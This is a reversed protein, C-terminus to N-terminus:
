DDDWDEPLEIEVIDLDFDEFGNFNDRIAKVISRAGELSLSPMAAIAGIILEPTISDDIHYQKSEELTSAIEQPTMNNTM